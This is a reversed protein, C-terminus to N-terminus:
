GLINIRIVLARGPDHLNVLSLTLSFFSHDGIRETGDRVM